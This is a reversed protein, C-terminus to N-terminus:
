CTKVLGSHALQRAMKDRYRRDRTKHFGTCFQSNATQGRLVFEKHLIEESDFFITLMDFISSVQGARGQGLQKPQPSPSKWQSFQQKIEPDSGCIWTEEGKITKCLFNSDNYLQDQLDKGISLHNQKREDKM